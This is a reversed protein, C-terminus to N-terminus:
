IVSLHKLAIVLCVAGPQFSGSSGWERCQVTPLPPAKEAARFIQKMFVNIVCVARQFHRTIKRPM